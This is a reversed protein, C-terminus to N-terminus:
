TRIPSLILLKAGEIVGWSVPRKVSRPSLNLSLSEGEREKKGREKVFSLPFFPTLNASPCDESGKHILVLNV